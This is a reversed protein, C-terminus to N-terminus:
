GWVEMAAVGQLCDIQGPNQLQGGHIDEQADKRVDTGPGQSRVRRRRRAKYLSPEGPDPMAALRVGCSTCYV